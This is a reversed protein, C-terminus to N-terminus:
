ILVFAVWKICSIVLISRSINLIFNNIDMFLIILQTAENIKNEQKRNISKRMSRKGEMIKRPGKKMEKKNSWKQQDMKRRKNKRRNVEEAKNSNLCKLSKMKIRMRIIMKKMKKTKKRKVRKVKITMIVIKMKMTTRIEQIKWKKTKRGKENMSVVKRRKKVNLKVKALVKPKLKMM